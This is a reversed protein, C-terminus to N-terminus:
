ADGALVHLPIDVTMSSVCGTWLCTMSGTIELAAQKKDKRLKEKKTAEIKRKEGRQFTHPELDIEIEM